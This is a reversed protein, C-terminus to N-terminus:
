SRIRALYFLCDRRAQVVTTTMMAPTLDRIVIVRGNAEIHFFRETDDLGLMNKALLPLASGTHAHGLVTGAPLLGFNTTDLGPALVLDVADSLAGGFAFAVEPRVTVRHNMEWIFPPRARSTRLGSLDAALFRDLVRLAYATSAPLGIMGCEVAVTPCRDALVEMLANAKLGWIMATDACLAALGLCGESWVPLVAYPPNDGTNNHLDIAAELGPITRLERLVADACRRMRTTPHNLGWVRNFDEQDDLHRHAFWGEQRAARVNGIFVWLDFAYTDKRRLMNLVARYGSDENGHLLCSVFRARGRGGTGPLHILAPKRDLAVLVDEDSGSLIDTLEDYGTFRHYLSGEM